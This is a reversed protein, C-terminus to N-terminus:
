KSCGAIKMAEMEYMMLKANNRGTRNMTAENNSDTIDFQKQLGECDKADMLADINTKVTPSYDEWEVATRTDATETPAVESNSTGETGSDGAGTISGIVSLAVVSLLVVIWIRQKRSRLDWFNKLANMEDGDKM